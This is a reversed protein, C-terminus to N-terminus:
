HKTARWTDCLYPVTFRGAPATALVRAILAEREAEPLLIFHSISRLHIELLGADAPQEHPVLRREPVSFGFAPGDFPPNDAARAYSARAEADWMDCFTGVWPVEDDFANWMLGITGGPRLVRAMEPVAAAPDFWHFAQGVVVADVSGDPLPIAEATGALAEAPVLARMEDDPEVAIVDLGLDLLVASLKGTGAALDLVRHADPPLSWRVAEPPYSPRGADYARAEAGFSLARRPDM